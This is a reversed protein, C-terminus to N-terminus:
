IEDHSTSILSSKLERQGGSCPATSLAASITCRFSKINCMSGMGTSKLTRMRTMVIINSGTHSLRMLRRMMITIHSHPQRMMINSHSTLRILSLSSTSTSSQHRYHLGPTVTRCTPTRKSIMM